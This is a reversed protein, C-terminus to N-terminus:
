TKLNELLVAKAAERKGAKILEKLLSINLAKQWAEGTFTLHSSKVEKRVESILDLLSAEEDDFETQMITKIKKALAPSRGGTSIAITIDNKRIYAPLIFDSEGPSDVINLLVNNKKAEAIVDRNAQSNGTASIAISAGILDGVTYERPIFRIRGSDHLRRVEPCIKPSIVTTMGGFDLLAEIKRLAVTGGGIVICKKGALNLFIPYYNLKESKKL